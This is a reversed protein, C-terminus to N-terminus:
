SPRHDSPGQLLVRVSVNDMVFLVGTAPDDYGPQPTGGGLGIFIVNTVGFYNFTILRPTTASLTWINSYILGGNYGLTEVQSNNYGDATLYASLLDFKQGSSNIFTGQGTYANFVVNPTSVMGAAFSGQFQGNKIWTEGNVVWFNPWNLNNYGGPVQPYDANLNTLDDFTVLTPSQGLVPVASLVLILAALSFVFPLLIGAVRRMVYSRLTKFSQVAMRGALILGLGALLVPLLFLNKIRTKM